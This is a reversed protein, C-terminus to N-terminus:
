PRAEPQTRHQTRPRSEQAPRPSRGEEPCAPLASCVPLADECSGRERWKGPPTPLHAEPLSHGPGRQVPRRPLRSDQFVVRPPWAAKREARERPLLTRRPERLSGPGSAPQLGDCTSEERGEGWLSLALASAPPPSYTLRHEEPWLLASSARERPTLLRPSGQGLKQSAPREAVLLGPGTPSSMAATYTKGHSGSSHMRCEQLRAPPEGPSPPCGASPRAVYRTSQPSGGTGDALTSPVMPLDRGCPARRVM